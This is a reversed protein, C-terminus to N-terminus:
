GGSALGAISKLLREMQHDFNPGSELEAAHSERIRHLDPPLQDSSPMPARNTLVPIVAKGLELALAIEMRVPDDTDFLRQSAWLKGIVAIVVDCSAIHDRLAQRWAAGPHLVELDVVVDHGAGRLRDSVRGVFSETDDRRYSLFVRATKQVARRVIVELERMVSQPNVDDAFQSRHWAMFTEAPVGIKDASLKATLELALVEEPNTDEMSTGRYLLRITAAQALEAIPVLTPLHLETEDLIRINLDYPSLSQLAVSDDRMLLGLSRAGRVAAERIDAPELSLIGPNAEAFQLQALACHTRFAALANKTETSDM